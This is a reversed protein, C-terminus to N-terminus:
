CDGPGPQRLQGGGGVAWGCLASDDAGSFVTPAGGNPLSWDATHPNCAVSWTELEHAQWDGMAVVEESGSGAEPLRWSRLYGDAHSTVFDPSLPPPASDAGGGAWSLSLAMSGNALGVGCEQLQGGGNSPTTAEAGLTLLRASGDAGAVGLIPQSEATNQRWPCWKIDLAGAALRTVECSAAPTPHWERVEPEARPEPEPEPQPPAAPPELGVRYLRVTGSRQQRRRQRERMEPDADRMGPGAADGDAAGRETAPQPEPEPEPEPESEELRYTGVALVLQAAEGARATAPQPCWDAACAPWETDMRLGRLRGVATREVASPEAETVPPLLPPAQWAPAAPAPAAAATGASSNTPVGRSTQAPTPAVPAPAPAAAPPLALDDDSSGSLDDLFDGMADGDEESSTM